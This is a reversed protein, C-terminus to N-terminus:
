KYPESFHNHHVQPYPFGAESRPPKEEAPYGVAIIAEVKYKDPINLLTRVYDEASQGDKHLRERIQIWCSGLGEEAATLHIILSAISCDEVWVDCKQPDGLVVIGLSANNLFSSGHEKAQALQALLSRDDIVIFEWPRLGRSSPSLLAAKILQDVKEKEVPRNQYKRISRRKKLQELM